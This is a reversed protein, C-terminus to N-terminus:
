VDLGVHRMLAIANSKTVVGERLRYDFVMEEHEIQDEFHVNRAVGDLRDCVDAIALDHTTVLGMAGRSVLGSLIAETGIKRDHSNTGHLIEDILFLLPTPGDTM